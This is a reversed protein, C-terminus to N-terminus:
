MCGCRHGALLLKVNHTRIKHKIPWYILIRKECGRHNLFFRFSYCEFIQFKKQEELKVGTQETLIKPPFFRSVRTLFFRLNNLYIHLTWCFKNMNKRSYKLEVKRTTSELIGQTWFQCPCQVSYFITKFLYDYLKVFSNPPFLIQLSCLKGFYHFIQM